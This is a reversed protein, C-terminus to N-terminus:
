DFSNNSPSCFHPFDESATMTSKPVILFAENSKSSTM